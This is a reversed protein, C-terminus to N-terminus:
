LDHPSIDVFIWYSLNEKSNQKAFAELGALCYLKLIFM